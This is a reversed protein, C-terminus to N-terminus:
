RNRKNSTRYDEWEFALLISPKEQLRSFVREGLFSPLTNLDLNSIVISPLVAEYRKNLIIFLYNRETESGFQVGVEDLILLDATVYYQIVEAENGQKWSAKIRSMLDAVTTYVVQYDKRHLASGIACALHTKGTGVGGYLTLCTGEMKLQHFKAAYTQTTNLVSVAHNTTPQYDAFTKNIFRKPINHSQRRAERNNAIAQSERKSVQALQYLAAKHDFSSDNVVNLKDQPFTLITAANHM